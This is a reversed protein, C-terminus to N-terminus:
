AKKKTTKGGTLAEELDSIRREFDAMRTDRDLEHDPFRWCHTTIADSMQHVNAFFLPDRDGAALVILDLSGDPVGDKHRIKLVQAAADVNGGRVQGTRWRYVVPM